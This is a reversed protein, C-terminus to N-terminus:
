LLAMTEASERQRRSGVSDSSTASNAATTVIALLNAIRTPPLCTKLGVLTPMAAVSSNADLAQTDGPCHPSAAKKASSTAQMPKRTTVRAARASTVSAN